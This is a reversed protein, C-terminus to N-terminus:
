KEEKLGRFSADGSTLDVVDKVEIAGMKSQSILGSAVM